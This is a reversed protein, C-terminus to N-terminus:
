FGPRPTNGQSEAERPPERLRSIEDKAQKLQERLRSIIEDKERTSQKRAAEREKDLLELTRKKAISVREAIDKEIKARERAVRADVEGHLAAARAQLKDFEALYETEHRAIEAERRDFERRKAELREEEDHRRKRELYEPRRLRARQPGIRLLAQAGGVQEQYRDLLAQAAARYADRQAKRNGAKAKAGDGPDGAGQRGEVESRRTKYGARRIEGQAAAPKWITEITLMCSSPDQFPICFAHLHFHREDEHTVISTLSEGFERQMFLVNREVWQEAAQRVHPDGMDESKFPLSAVLALLTPFTRPLSRGLRDKAGKIREDHIQPLGDLQAGYVCKPAKPETVHPHHGSKRVAEAIVAAVGNKGRWGRRAYVEGHFFQSKM